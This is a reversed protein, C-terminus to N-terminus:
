HTAFCPQTVQQTGMEKRGSAKKRRREGEHSLKRYIKKRGTDGPTFKQQKCGLAQSSWLLVQHALRQAADSQQALIFVDASKPARRISKAELPMSLGPCLSPCTHDQESLLSSALSPNWGESERAVM